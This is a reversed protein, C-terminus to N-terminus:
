HLPLIATRTSSHGSPRAQTAPQLLIEARTGGGAAPHLSATGHDTALLRAVIALGLGTGGRGGRDTTYPDFARARQQESMGPGTDEVNVVPNEGNRTVSVTVQGGPPVVEIANALLNDLIQELHGATLAALVPTTSPRQQKLTIQREAAVPEWARLRETAVKEVDTPIPASETAEARAIALLGDVLRALRNTEALMASAETRTADDTDEALLELRLRLAALPTRLQHSVEAVMGRQARLLTSVRHAMDNFAHAVERVQVPGVDPDARAEAHGTGIGHAAGILSRLPRSIWRGLSWGVVAGLILAFLAAASLALWLTRVRHDLSTSDRVLVITGVTRRGDSVPATVVVRSEVGPPRRGAQASAVATAPPPQATTAVITGANDLVAVRDSAGAATALLRPLAAASAHDDLQEEALSALSRAAARASDTFDHRQQGTVILGLPVIIATIVVVLVALFSALIRRTM